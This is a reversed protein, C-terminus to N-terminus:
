NYPQPVAPQRAMVGEICVHRRELRARDLADDPAGLTRFCHICRILRRTSARANEAVSPSPTSAIELANRVEDGFDSLVRNRGETKARYLIRDVRRLLSEMDEDQRLEVVGFTATLPRTLSSVVAQDLHSQLRDALLKAEVQGVAPMVICFEDGGLRAVLDTDRVMSAMTRAVARLASDGAEHGSEDNISKFHDLDALVLSMKGGYRRVRSIERALGEDLRRRNGVGTLPDTLSMTELEAQRALLSDRMECWDSVDRDVGVCAVPENDSDLVLEQAAEIFRIGKAPHVIRFRRKDRLGHQVTQSFIGSALQLDDPHVVNKWIESTIPSGEALGYMEYMRADWILNNTRFDWQWVGINGAQLALRLTAIAARSTDDTAKREDKEGPLPILAPLIDNVPANQDHITAVAPEEQLLWHWTEQMKM